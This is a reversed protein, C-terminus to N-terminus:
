FRPLSLLNNTPTNDPHTTIYDGNACHPCRHVYVAGPPSGGTFFADGSGIKAIVTIRPLATGDNLRVAEIHEHRSPVVLVTTRVATIIYTAM